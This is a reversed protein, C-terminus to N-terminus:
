SSIPLVAFTHHALDTVVQIMQEKCVMCWIQYLPLLATLLSYEQGRACHFWTLTGWTNCNHQTYCVNQIQIISFFGATNWWIGSFQFASFPLLKIIQHLAANILTKTGSSPPSFPESGQVRTCCDSCLQSLNASHQDLLSQLVTPLAQVLSGVHQSPQSNLSSCHHVNIPIHGVHLSKGLYFFSVLGWKWSKM